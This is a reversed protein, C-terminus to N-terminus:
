KVFTRYSKKEDGYFFVFRLRSCVGTSKTKKKEGSVSLDSGGRQTGNEKKLLLMLLIGCVGNVM